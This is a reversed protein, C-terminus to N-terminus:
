LVNIFILAVFALVIGVICKLTLKEKFFVAAMVSSLIMGGGQCLPYIQSAPLLVAARTKFYSATFLCVSMVFIYVFMSKKFPASETKRFKFRVFAYIVLLAASAFLYTYFNFVSVSVEGATYEVFMKQSLDAVGNSIGCLALLLLASPRLKGKLSSNYSCMIIVAVFLLGLGIWETIGIHEGFLVSSGILPLMVGATLFIDVMMYASQRVSILWSLVFLDTAFGSLLAILLVSPELLLSTVEGGTIVVALGIVFCLLMRLSSAFVADCLRSTYNSTKKGCFGKVAGSILSFFLFLYGM